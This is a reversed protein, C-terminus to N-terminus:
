APLRRALQPVGPGSLRHLLAPRGCAAMLVDIGRGRLEPGSGASWGVDEAVLRLGALRGRPVFGLPRRGTVFELAARVAEPDPAHTLGLPVRIDGAHVLVDTLPGRPGIVPPSSRRDAHARLRAALEAAPRRAEQRALADNARHPNGRARLVAVAFERDAGAVATVLHAAVTRVDWGACLSPTNLQEEDLGDVLDALERRERASSRFVQEADV